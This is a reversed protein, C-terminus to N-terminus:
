KLRLDVRPCLNKFLNKRHIREQCAIYELTIKLDGKEKQDSM